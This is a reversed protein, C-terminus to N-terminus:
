AGGAAPYLLYKERVPLFAKLPEEFSKLIAEVEVGADIQRRVTDTGMLRDFHLPPDSGRWAFQDPYLRRITAVLHLGLDVPRFLDRDTVYVQIGHCPEGVYKHFTPIFHAQRFTVGPLGLERMASWLARADIWPAGIVQFSLTTGRGESVNTGEILCTGPYITMADLTPINPGIMVWPSGTEDLWRDRYWGEMPIVDLDCGIGFEENFYRALEGMTMGHRLALPFRGVFSSFAPDLVNGEVRDGRIPNPRDLVVVKVGAEAAAEMALSLTSSYTLFRVGGDPIDFVLVDIQQLMQPTPKRAPGYLSYVPLGTEPDTADEVPAGAQLDGRVGHEPGFLAVLNIGEHQWFADVTPQLDSTQGCQNTLLGIRAGEYERYARALFVDVGLRVKDV